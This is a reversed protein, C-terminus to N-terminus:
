KNLVFVASSKEAHKRLGHKAGLHQEACEVQGKYHTHEPSLQKNQCLSPDQISCAWM